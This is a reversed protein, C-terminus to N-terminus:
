APPGVGGSGEDSRDTHQQHSVEAPSQGSSSPPPSPEMQYTLAVASQAHSPQPQQQFLFGGEYPVADPSTVAVTAGASSRPVAHAYAAAQRMMLDQERAVEVAAALQQAEALQQHHLHQHQMMIQQHPHPHGHGHGQQSSVGVGLEMGAAAALPVAAAYQAAAHHHHRYQPAAVFPAFAAPGIYSALEKRAAALEDRAQKIKLQLVSIYSVCGYVPDRLRADAEYALSNVADERHAQPIENLLKSVNSAGFVRHVSAFKSPNDPPFYPAFVCGQTCKRRLLKCAACPSSSSSM